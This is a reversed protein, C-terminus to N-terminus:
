TTCIICRLKPIVGIHHIGILRRHVICLCIDFSDQASFRSRKHVRLLVRMETTDDTMLATYWAIFSIVLILPLWVPKRKKKHECKTISLLRRILGM